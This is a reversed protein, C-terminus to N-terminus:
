PRECPAPAARGAPQDYKWRDRETELQQALVV